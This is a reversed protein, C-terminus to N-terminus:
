DRPGGPTRWPAPPAYKNELDHGDVDGRREGQAGQGPSSRGARALIYSNASEWRPGHSGWWIWAGDRFRLRSWGIKEIDNLRGQFTLKGRRYVRIFADDIEIQRPGFIGIYLFHILLLPIVLEWRYFGDVFGIVLRIVLWVLSAVLLFGEPYLEFERIVFRPPESM